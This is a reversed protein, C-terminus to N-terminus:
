RKSSELKKEKLFDGFIETHKTTDEVIELLPNVAKPSFVVKKSGKLDDITEIWVFDSFDPNIDKEKPEKVSFTDDKVWGLYYMVKKLQINQIKYKSKQRVKEHISHMSTSEKTKENNLVIEGVLKYIPKGETTSIKGIEGASIANLIVNIPGDEKNDIEIDTSALVKNKSNYGYVKGQQPNLILIEKPNIDFVEPLLGSWIQMFEKNKENVKTEIFTNFESTKDNARINGGAGRYIVDGKKLNCDLFDNKPILITGQKEILVYYFKRTAINFPHIDVNIQTDYMKVFQDSLNKLDIARLVDINDDKLGVDTIEGTDRNENFGLFLMGGEKNAFALIDKAFNRLFVIVENVGESLNLELKYDILTNEKWYIGKDKISEVIEEAKIKLEAITM